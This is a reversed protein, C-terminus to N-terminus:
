STGSSRFATSSYYREEVTMDLEEQINKGTNRKARRVTTRAGKCVESPVYVRFFHMEIQYATEEAHECTGGKVNFSFLRQRLRERPTKTEAYLDGVHLVGYIHPIAARRAYTPSKTSKSAKDLQEAGDIREHRGPKEKAHVLKQL